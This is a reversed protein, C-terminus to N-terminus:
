SVEEVILNISGILFYIMLIDFFVRQRYLCVCVRVDCLLYYILNLFTISYFHLKLRRFAVFYFTSLFYCSKMETADM